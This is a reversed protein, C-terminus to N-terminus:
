FNWQAGLEIHRGPWQNDYDSAPDVPPSYIDSDFLNNVGVSLFLQKGVEAQFAVNSLWFADANDEQQVASESQYNDATDRDSYYIVDWYLSYRPSFQYNVQATVTLDSLLQLDSDEVNSSEPTVITRNLLGPNENTTLLYSANASLNLVESPKWNWSLELGSIDIEDFNFGYEDGSGGDIVVGDVSNVTIEKIFEQYRNFYWVLQLDHENITTGIATELTQMQEPQLSNKQEYDDNYKKLYERYSPTRYSTGYLVKYNFNESERTLGLRYDFQNDFESLQDYRMGFHLWHDYLQQQYEAFIGIDEREADEVLLEEKSRIPASDLPYETNDEFTNRSWDSRYNLGLSLHQQVSLPMLLTADFGAASTDHVSAGDESIRDGEYKQKPRSFDYRKLYGELKLQMRESIQLQYDAKTSFLQKDYGQWRDGSTYRYPYSYDSYSMQLKFDQWHYKGLLYQREASVDRDYFEGERHYQPRMGQEDLTSAFLYFDGYESQWDYDGYIESDIAFETDASSIYSNQQGMWAGIRRGSDRTTVSIVGSFSNAGHVVGGPGSLVEVREVQQLPLQNNIHFNGYYADEQPVGDVLLLVKNNNRNQVGRLWINSHGNKSVSVQVGPIHLLLQQLDRWNNREIDQRDVVRVIGPSNALSQQFSSSVSVTVEALQELTMDFLSSEEPEAVVCASTLLLLVAFIKM